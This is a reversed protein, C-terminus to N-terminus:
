NRATPCPIIGCGDVHATAVEAAGCGRQCLESDCVGVVCGHDSGIHTTPSDDTAGGFIDADNGPSDAFGESAAHCVCVHAISEKRVDVITAKDRQIEGVLEGGEASSRTPVIHAFGERRVQGSEDPGSDIRQDKM